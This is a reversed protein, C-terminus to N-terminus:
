KTFGETREYEDRYKLIGKALVDAMRDLHSSNSLKAEENKNSLYAAEILVAPMRTGKLVYFRATRIGRNRTIFSDEVSGCIHSALAASERRNETLTMDWLAKDVGSSHSIAAEDSLKLSENEFAELARANDDTAESLYYCEFGSLSRTRSANIHVSIFLDAGSKNAIEARRPLPIFTDDYRTMIVRIGNKELENKLRTALALTLHKERLRMRRGIAGPDKGGHGPDIVITNITVQKDHEQVTEVPRSVTYSPATVISGLGNRVFSIPVLVAGAQMLVPGDLKKESGNILLKDSGARLVISGKKEITATRTFTDWKWSLGYVDCLKALPVYQTGNITKIDKTLSTDLKLYPGQAACGALFIVALISITLKINYSLKM